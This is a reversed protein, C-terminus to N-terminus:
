TLMNVKLISPAINALLFIINNWLGEFNTIKKGLLYFNNNPENLSDCKIGFSSTAIVDNTYRTFLDKMEIELMQGNSKKVLYNSVDKACELMLVYMARMKSSTFAPSLTARMERWKQGKMSLLNKAILPDVEEPIFSNHDTFHDFDKVTIQKIM